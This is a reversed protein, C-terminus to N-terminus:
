ESWGKERAYSMLEELDAECREFREAELGTFSARRKGRYLDCREHWAARRADFARYDARLFWVAGAALLLVLLGGLTRAKM